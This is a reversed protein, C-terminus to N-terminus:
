GVLIERPLDHLNYNNAMSFGYAGADAIAAWEGARMEPVARAKAFVDTSECIPGVIDYTRPARLANTLPLFRHHAGYLMPRMLTHMGSDVILFERHSTSKVYQVETLLVGGHGVIWRGPELQLQAGLDATEHRVISAYEKLDAAEGALDDTEYSIGLGGGADFIRTTSFNERLAEYAPRLRRLAQRLGGFERMQSGLHLSVGLIDVADRNRQGAEILHPLAAVEIGFKNEALGTAISPHTQISVDPNLRFMVRARRALRRAIQAIRVFEPISEVNFQAIDADIAATIERETKGVGSFIIDKPLFGCELARRVEGGSVVDAKAGGGHLFQLLERNPNAKLAYHLDARPFADRMERLRSGMFGRHYIYTPGAGPEVYQGLRTSKEWLCLSDDQYFLVKQAM